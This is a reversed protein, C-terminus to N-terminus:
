KKAPVNPRNQKVMPRMVIVGVSESEAIPKDNEDTVTASIKHEGRPPEVLTYTAETSKTIVSGDMLYNIFYGPQLPQNLSVTMTLNREDPMLTTGNSPSTLSITYVYDVHATTGNVTAHDGIKEPPLTNLTPLEIAKANSNAPPVDTYVVRGNKDVTKFIEGNVPLSLSLSLILGLSLYTRM